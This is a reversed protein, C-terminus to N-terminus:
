AAARQRLDCHGRIHALHARVIRRLGAEDGGDATSEAAGDTVKETLRTGGDATPEFDFERDLLVDNSPNWEIGTDRAMYQGLARLLFYTRLDDQTMNVPCGIDISEELTAM